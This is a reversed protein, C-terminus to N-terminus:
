LRGRYAALADSLHRIVGSIWDRTNLDFLKASHNVDMNLMNTLSSKAGKLAELLGDVAATEIMGDAQRWKAVRPKGIRHRVVEEGVIEIARPNGKSDCTLPGIQWEGWEIGDDDARPMKAVTASRYRLPVLDLPHDRGSGKWFGDLTWTRGFGLAHGRIPFDSDGEFERLGVVETFPHGRTGYKRSLDIM